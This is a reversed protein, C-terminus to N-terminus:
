SMAYAFQFVGNGDELPAFLFNKTADALCRLDEDWTFGYCQALHWLTSPTNMNQITNTPTWYDKVSESFDRVVDGARRTVVTVNGSAGPVLVLDHTKSWGAASILNNELYKTLDKNKLFSEKLIRKKQWNALDWKEALAALVPPHLTKM